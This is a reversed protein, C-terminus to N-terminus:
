CLWPFDGNKIPLGDIFLYGSPIHCIHMYIYIYIHNYAQAYPSKILPLSHHGIALRGYFIPFDNPITIGFGLSIIPYHALYHSIKM